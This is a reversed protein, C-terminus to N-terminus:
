KHCWLYTSYIFLATLKYESLQKSWSLIANKKQSEKNLLLLEPRKGNKNRRDLLTVTLNIILGPMKAIKISFKETYIQLFM